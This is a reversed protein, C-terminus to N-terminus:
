SNSSWKIERCDQVEKMSWLDAAKIKGEVYDRFWGTHCNFGAPGFNRSGDKNMLVWTFDTKNYNDPFVLLDKTAAEGECGHGQPPYAIGTDIVEDRLAHALILFLLKHHDEDRGVSHLKVALNNLREQAEKHIILAM